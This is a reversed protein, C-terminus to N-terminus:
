DECEKDEVQADSKSMLGEGPWSIESNIEVGCESDYYNAWNPLDCLIIALLLSNPEYPGCNNWELNIACFCLLLVKGM